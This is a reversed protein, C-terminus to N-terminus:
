QTHAFCAPLCVRTISSSPLVDHANLAKLRSSLLMFGAAVFVSLPMAKEATRMCRAKVRCVHRVCCTYYQIPMNGGGLSKRNM